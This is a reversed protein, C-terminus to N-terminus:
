IRKGNKVELKKILNKIIKKSGKNKWPMYRKCRTCSIPKKVRPIWTYGCYPCKVKKTEM